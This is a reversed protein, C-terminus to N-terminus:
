IMEELINYLNWCHGIIIESKCFDEIEKDFNQNEIIQNNWLDERSIYLKLEADSKIDIDERSGAISRSILKRLATAFNYKNIIKIKDNNKFYNLIFNKTEEPLELKYDELINRKINNWCLNEFYEFFSVLSNVTFSENNDNNCNEFLKILEQNLIICKPLKEIINYILYNKPYNDKIIENMLIQLSAFIENYFKNKNYKIMENVCKKEYDSLDRRYYKSNYDVLITSNGGRFGEYLYTFFRIKDSKFKKIRPLIKKGLEEEIYDYNYIIDNYNNYNIKNDSNSFINRMSSFSILDYFYKYTNHDIVIIEDEIADQIYIEQELRPVYSNLIGSMNNNSIIQDIFANQWNIFHEYASSLFMGGEKDGDDVLFYNITKEIDMVLPKEGKKFDRLVRCKYQVCDNKIKNWSEIFPDVYEKIFEEETIKEINIENYSDLINALEKSFQYKKADERSIKYSYINLLLNSLKNINFLYKMKKANKVIDSDKNILFNILTYKRKNNDNSNFKQIFSNIDQIKSPTYYQIDPFKNQPYILPDYNSQIIEKISQPNSSLLEDNMMHYDKNLQEINDKNDIIKLICNNVSLEFRNIKEETDVETLEIILKIIQDFIM